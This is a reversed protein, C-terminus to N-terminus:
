SYNRPFVTSSVSLSNNGKVMTFSVKIYRINAPTTTVAGDEDYYTFSLSSVDKALPWSNRMLSTGALSYTINTGSVSEFTIDNANASFGPVDKNRMSRLERTMRAMAFRAQGDLSTMQMRTLAGQFAHYLLPGSVVALIGLLTIVLTFEILSFGAIHKIFHKM